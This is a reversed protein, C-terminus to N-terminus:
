RDGAGGCTCKQSRMAVTQPAPASGLAAHGSAAAERVSAPRVALQGAAVARAEDTTSIVQISGPASRKSPPLQSGAILRADDTTAPISPLPAISAESPLRKGALARAEDTTTVTSNQACTCSSGKMKKMHAAHDHSAGEAALAVIPALVFAAAVLRSATIRRFM